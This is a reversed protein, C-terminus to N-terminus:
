ANSVALTPAWAEYGDRLIENVTDKDFDDPDFDETSDIGLWEDMMEHQFPVADIKYKKMLPHPEGKARCIDFEKKLLTDTASNLTFAPGSVQDV